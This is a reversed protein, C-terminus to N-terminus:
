EFLERVALMWGPVVDGGDLVDVEGREQAPRGPQHVRALREDPYIAIVMRTGHELWTRIKNAVEAPRDGPSIVEVALDPAGPWYGRVRGAAHVREQRVFAADPARVLDPDRALLFGTEAAFTRGLRRARVHKALFEYANGAIWGHEGGSPAMTRLEGDVLEHRLGDDPMLLLEEATMRRGTLAM